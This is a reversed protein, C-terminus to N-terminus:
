QSLQSKGSAEPAETLLREAAETIASNNEVHAEAVTIAADCIFDLLYWLRCVAASRFLLTGRLSRQYLAALVPIGETERERKFFAVRIVVM